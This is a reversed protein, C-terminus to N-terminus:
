PYVKYSMQVNDQSSDIISNWTTRATFLNGSKTIALKYVPEVTTPVGTTNQKCNASTSALVTPQSSATTNPIICFSGTTAPPANLVAAGATSNMMSRILEFQGQTLKLAAAREESDRTTRLSTNTIAYAGALILSIIAISILVEVITDGRQNRSAIFRRSMISM